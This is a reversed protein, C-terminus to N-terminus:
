SHGGAGIVWREWPALWIPCLRSESGSLGVNSLQSRTTSGLCALYGRQAETGRNPFYSYSDRDQLPTTSDFSTHLSRLVLWLTHLKYETLPSFGREGDGNGRETGLVM